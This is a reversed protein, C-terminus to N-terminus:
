ADVKKRRMVMFGVIGLIGAMAILGWENLTPVDREPICETVQACGNGPNWAIGHEADFCGRATTNQVCEGPEIVCCGLESITNACFAGAGGEFCIGEGAVTGGNDACFEEQTACGGGICGLCSDTAENICCGQPVSSISTQPLALLLFSFILFAFITLTINKIM